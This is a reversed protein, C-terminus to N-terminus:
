EARLRIAACQRTTASQERGCGLFSWDLHWQWWLRHLKRQQYLSICPKARGITVVINDFLEGYQRCHNQREYGRLTVDAIFNVTGNSGPESFRPARPVM